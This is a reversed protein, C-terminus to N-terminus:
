QLSLLQKQEYDVQLFESFFRPAYKIVEVIKFEICMVAGAIM